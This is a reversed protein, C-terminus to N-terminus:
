PAQTGVTERLRRLAANVRETGILREGTERARVRLRRALARMRSDTLHVDIVDRRKTAFRSKYTENGVTFDFEDAKEDRAVEFLHKLLVQGPSSKAFEPEYSPKYLTFRGAYHFGYHAAILRGDLRLATFRLVGSADLRETFRRYFARQDDARFLSPWQTPQWRRVHQEFFEDLQPLIRQADRVTENTLTGQRELAREQRRLSTKKLADEVAAMDMAPAPVCREETAFLGCSPDFVVAPMLSEGRQIHSLSARRFGPASRRAAHLLASVLRSAVAPELESSVVVDSYDSPGKGAFELTGDRLQFAAAAVLRGDRRVQPIVLDAGRGLTEHWARLWGSLLFVTDARSGALLGDWEGGLAFTEDFERTVRTEFGDARATDGV